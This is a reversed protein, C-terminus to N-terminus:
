RVNPAHIFPMKTGAFKANAWDLVSFLAFYQPHKLNSFKLYFTNSIYYRSTAPKKYEPESDSSDASLSM